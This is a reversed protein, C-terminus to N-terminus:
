PRRGPRSVARLPRSSPPWGCEKEQTKYATKKEEELRVSYRLEAGGVPRRSPTRRPSTRPAPLGRVPGDSSAGRLARRDGRAGPALRARHRVGRRQLPSPGHRLGDRPAPEGTSSAARRDLYGFFGGAFSDGAGTPDRVDELPFGPLAFFSMPRRHVPGSRVRRAQRRGGATGDGDGRPGGPRPQLERDAHPDGRRERVLCDVEAIAALLSDARNRDLPEDLRPRQVPPRRVRACRASSTPSSTPSSSPTPRAQGRRVAEARVRRLRELQTDDTHAINLDYDYHGRWFFSQGGPVREIDDTLSGAGLALLEFQERRLRRRGPRGVHVETFFSAALSFHVAAGGLM